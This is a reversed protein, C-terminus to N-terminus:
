LNEKQIKLKAKKVAELPIIWEKEDDRVIINEEQVGQLRVATFTHRAIVPARTAGEPPLAVPAEGERASLTSPI